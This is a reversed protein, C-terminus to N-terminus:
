AAPIREDKSVSLVFPYEKQVSVSPVWQLIGNFSFPLQCAAIPFFVAM